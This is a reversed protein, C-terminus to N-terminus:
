KKIDPNVEAVLPNNPNGDNSKDVVVQQKAIFLTQMCADIVMKAKGENIPAGGNSEDVAPVYYVDLEKPLGRGIFKLKTKLSSVDGDKMMSPNVYWYVTKTEPARSVAWKDQLTIRALNCPGDLTQIGSFMVDYDFYFIKQSLEAAGYAGDCSVKITEGVLWSPDIEVVSFGTQTKSIFKQNKFDERVKANYESSFLMKARQLDFWAGDEPYGQYYLDVLLQAQLDLTTTM